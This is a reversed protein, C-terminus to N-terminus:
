VPSNGPTCALPESSNSSRSFEMYLSAMTTEKWVMAMLVCVLISPFIASIPCPLVTLQQPIEMGSISHLFICLRPLRSLVAALPSIFWVRARMNPTQPQPSQDSLPFSLLLKYLLKLLLKNPVLQPTLLMWSLSGESMIHSCVISLTIHFSLFPIDCAFPLTPGGFLLISVTIYAPNGYIGMSSAHM